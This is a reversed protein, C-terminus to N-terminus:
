PSSYMPRGKGNYKQDYSVYNELDLEEIHTPFGPDVTYRLFMRNGHSLLMSQKKPGELFTSLSIMCIKKM